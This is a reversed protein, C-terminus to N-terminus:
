ANKRVVVAHYHNIVGNQWAKSQIVTFYGEKPTYPSGLFVEDAKSDTGRIATRLPTNTFINFVEADRYGEPLTELETGSAPQVTCNELTFEVVTDDIPRNREDM